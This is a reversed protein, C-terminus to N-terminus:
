WTQVASFDYLGQTNASQTAHESNTSRMDNSEITTWPETFEPTPEMSLQFTPEVAHQARQEMVWFPNWTFQCPYCMPNLPDACENACNMCVTGNCHRCMILHNGHIIRRPMGSPTYATVIVHCGCNPCDNRVQAFAIDPSSRLKLRTEDEAKHRADGTMEFECHVDRSPFSNRAHYRRELFEDSESDSATPDFGAAARAQNMELELYYNEVRDLDIDQAKEAISRLGSHLKNSM